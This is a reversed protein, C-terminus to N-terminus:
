NARPPPPPGDPHPECAPPQEITWAAAAIRWGAPTRVMTFQDVGCHSWKGAVYLDYPLWVTALPGSIHVVPRFGREVIPQDFGSAREQARTRISYRPAGGEGLWARIIVAEEVMLDTVAVIDGRTVAALASDALALVAAHADSADQAAAPSALAALALITVIRRDALTNALSAPAILRLSPTPPVVSSAPRAVAGGSPRCNVANVASRAFSRLSGRLFLSLIIQGVEVGVLSRPFPPAFEKTM